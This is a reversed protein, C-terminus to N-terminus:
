PFSDGRIKKSELSFDWGYHDFIRTDHSPKAKRKYLTLLHHAAIFGEDTLIHGANKLCSWRSLNCSSSNFSHKEVFLLILERNGSTIKWRRSGRFLRVSEFTIARCVCVCGGNDTDYYPYCACLLFVTSRFDFVISSYKSERNLGLTRYDPVSSRGTRSQYCESKEGSYQVFTARTIKNKRGASYGKGAKSFIRPTFSRRLTRVWNM